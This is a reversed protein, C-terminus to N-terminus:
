YGGALRGAVNVIGFFSALQVEDESFGLWLDAQEFRLWEQGHACLDILIVHGSPHLVRAMEAM